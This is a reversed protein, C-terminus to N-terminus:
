VHARGIEKKSPQSLEAKLDVYKEVYKKYGKETPIRGASTHPHMILNIKELENMDNRVTASSFDKLYKDVVLKSGVPMATKIYEKVIIKFLKEQRSNM